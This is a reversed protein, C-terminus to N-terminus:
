PLYPCQCEACNDLKSAQGAEGRDNRGCRQVMCFIQFLQPGRMDDVSLQVRLRDFGGNALDRGFGEVNDVIRHRKLIGLIDAVVDERLAAREDDDCGDVDRLLLAAGGLM